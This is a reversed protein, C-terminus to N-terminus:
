ILRKWLEFGEDDMNDIALMKNFVDNTIIYGTEPPNLGLYKVCMENFKGSHINTFYMRINLNDERKMRIGINIDPGLLRKVVRCVIDNLDYIYKQVQLFDDKNM